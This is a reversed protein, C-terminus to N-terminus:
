EARHDDEEEGEVDGDQLGDQDKLMTTRLVIMKVMTMTRPTLMIMRYVCVCVSKVIGKLYLHKDVM